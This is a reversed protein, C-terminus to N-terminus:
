ACAIMGCPVTVRGLGQLPFRLTWAQYPVTWFESSKVLTKTIPSIRRPISNFRGVLGANAAFRSRQSRQIWCSKRFLIRGTVNPKNLDDAVVELKGTGPNFRFVHAGGYESEGAKGEYDSLIGYPPDTFWITDDSKVVVDNPSNLKKGEFQDVL